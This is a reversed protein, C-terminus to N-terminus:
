ARGTVFETPALVNIHEHGSPWFVLFTAEPYEESHCTLEVPRDRIITIGSAAAAEILLRELSRPAEVMAMAKLPLRMNAFPYDGDPLLDTM